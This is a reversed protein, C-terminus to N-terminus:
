SRLTACTRFRRKPKPQIYSRVREPPSQKQTHDSKEKQAPNPLREKPGKRSAFMQFAILVPNRATELSKRFVLGTGDRMPVLRSTPRSRLSPRVLSSLVSPVRKEIEVERHSVLCESVLKKKEARM